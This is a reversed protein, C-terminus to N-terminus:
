SPIRGDCAEPVSVPNGDTSRQDRAGVGRYQRCGRTESTKSIGARSKWMSVGRWRVRPKFARASSARESHEPVQGPVTCCARPLSPDGASMLEPGGWHRPDRRSGDSLSGVAKPTSRGRSLSLRGHRVAPAYARELRWPHRSRAVEERYIQHVARTVKQM